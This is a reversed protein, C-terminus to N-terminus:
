TPCSLLAQFALLRQQETQPQALVASQQNKRKYIEPAM